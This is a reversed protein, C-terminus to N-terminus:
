AEAEEESEFTIKRSGAEVVLSDLCQKVLGLGKATNDRVAENDRISQADVGSLLQQASQVIMDLQADDTVNRLKFNEFFQNLNALSSSHFRNAKGDEGPTLREVMHDVMEKLQERLLLTIEETAQAWKTAAKQQEQEFFTASIEKLKGPTTFSIWSWEFVFMARVRSPAPYDTPNYLGKLRTEAESKRQKYVKLFAEILDARKTQGETLREQVKQIAAIPVLYFGARFFSPLSIDVLWSRLEGDHKTIAKLEAADLLTKNVRIMSKDADVEVESTSVKRSNGLAGFTISICVTKETVNLTPLPPATALQEEMTPMM